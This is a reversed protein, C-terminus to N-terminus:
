EDHTVSNEITEYEDQFQFAIIKVFNLAHFTNALKVDVEYYASNQDLEARTVTGIVIGQMFITSNGSTVITDGVQVTTHRPLEQMQVTTPDLGNWAITGLFDSNKIKGSITSETNLVSIVTCFHSSVALIKGVVGQPTIVGMNPRIGDNTGKDLILFNQLRNTTNYIIRAACVTYASDGFHAFSTAAKQSQLHFLQNQLSENEAVLRENEQRLSFYDAVQSTVSYFAGAISNNIRGFVSNQYANGNVMLLVAISEILVFAVFFIHRSLFRLIQLM